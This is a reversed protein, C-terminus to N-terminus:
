ARPRGVGAAVLEEETPGTNRCCALLQGDVVVAPVAKIGQEAARAAAAKDGHLDHVVVEQDEGALARVRAEGEACVPCGASFIEIRQAM